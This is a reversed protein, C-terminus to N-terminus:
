EASQLLEQGYANLTDFYVESQIYFSDERPSLVGCPFYVMLSNDFWYQVEEQAEVAAAYGEYFHENYEDDNEEELQRLIEDAVAKRFAAGGDDTLDEPTVFSGSRLDFLYCLNREDLLRGGSATYLWFDISIMKDPEECSFDLMVDDCGDWQLGNERCHEYNELAAKSRESFIASLGMKEPIEAMAANFTNIVAKQQRNARGNAEFQPLSYKCSCVITGDPAQSFELAPESYSLTYDSSSADPDSNKQSSGCATLLLSLLLCLILFHKKM